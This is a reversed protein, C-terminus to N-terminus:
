IFLYLYNLVEDIIYNCEENIWEKFFYKIKNVIKFIDIYSVEYKYFNNCIRNIIVM